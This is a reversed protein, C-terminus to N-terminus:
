RPDTVNNWDVDNWKMKGNFNRNNFCNNCDIDLDNGWRGNGGWVGWDSWDIAAAWLAGTVFGPFYSATPYYYSPYAEPYYSIVSAAYTPEYLMQPEYVPVYIEEPKVPQVIVKDAQHVVTTKEDSKLIGKAVAKDRLQQIAELLDKEQKTVADGLAQTWDLDDNMMKVIEPYNLLAIMSGDWRQDPKLDRKTKVQDLYRQAQVIQVPYLSAAVIVAVLEDPYLAIRAVLVEMEEETLAGFTTIESGSISIAISKPTQAQATASKPHGAAATVLFLGLLGMKTQSLPSRM